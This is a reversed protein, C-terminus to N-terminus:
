RTLDKMVIVMSPCACPAITVWSYVLPIVESVLATIAIMAETSSAWASRGASLLAPIRGSFFHASFSPPTAGRAEGWVRRLASPAVFHQERRSYYPTPHSDLSLTTNQQAFDGGRGIRGGKVAWGGSIAIGGM